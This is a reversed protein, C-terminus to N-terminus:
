FSMTSAQMDIVVRVIALFPRGLIIPMQSSEDMDMVIFNCPIVVKGVQIPVDELIGVHQRIIHDALHIITTTPKLDLLELKKYLSLSMLSVSAGLDRLTSKIQIDRM